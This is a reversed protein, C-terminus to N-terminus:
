SSEDRLQWKMIKGTVTHPLESVVEIVSPLKFRALSRSAAALLEEPHVSAGPAPVVYAHVSEGHDQDAVGVVAVEAVGKEAALVAEVEAPYVNFGNVIVLEQSRGVLRLDGDDDIVAVDGTAFWGDEDPGGAGDPWYGSFLNAGRLHLRGPDGPEVPEGDEDRLEIDVGPLPKGVTGARGDLGVTVVPAAETLGYGDHLTIGAARYGLVVGVALTASGCMAFHVNAFGAPFGQRRLWAAYQGPVGVVVSAREAAMTALTEDPDFRDALLTTAGARLANGLGANLGYVHTLPLPVFVVDAATVPAPELAGVQELNALLARSSLMAGKPRGSTGSTYLLVALDEGARDCRPDAAAPAAALLARGADADLDLVAGSDTRVHEVEPETCAPNVPVAVLGARLAGLYLLVLDVGSPLRLLVRDGDTAGRRRLAMAAASARSDLEAWTLRTAPGDPGPGVLAAREPTVAAHLRVFDTLAHVTTV